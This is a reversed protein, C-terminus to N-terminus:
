VCRLMVLSHAHALLSKEKWAQNSSVLSIEALFDRSVHAQENIFHTM